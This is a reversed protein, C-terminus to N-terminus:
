PLLGYKKIADKLTKFYWGNEGFIQTDLYSHYNPKTYSLDQARTGIRHWIDSLNSFTIKFVEFGIPQDNEIVEFLAKKTTRELLEYTVMKTYIRVKPRKKKVTKEAFKGKQM